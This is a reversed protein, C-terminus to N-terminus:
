VNSAGQRAPSGPRVASFQVSSVAELLNCTFSQCNLVFLKCLIILFVVIELVELGSVFVNQVDPTPGDHISTLMSFHSFQFLKRAPLRGALTLVKGGEEQHQGGLEVSLGGELGLGHCYQGWDCCSFNLRRSNSNPNGDGPVWGRNLVPFAAWQCLDAEAWTMVESEGPVWGVCLASINVLLRWVSAMRLVEDIGGSMWSACLDVLQKCDTARLTTLNRVGPVWGVFLVTCAVQQWLSAAVFGQVDKDGPVPYIGLRRSDVAMLLVVDDGGSVWSSAWMLVSCVPLKVSTIPTARHRNILAGGDLLVVVPQM